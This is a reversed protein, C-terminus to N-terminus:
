VEVTLPAWNKNEGPYGRPNCVVRVGEVIKDAAEHTHGHCWVLINEKYRKILELM